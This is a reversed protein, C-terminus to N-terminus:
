IINFGDKKREKKKKKSENLAKDWWEQGYIIRGVTNFGKEFKFLSNNFLARTREADTSDPLVSRMRDYVGKDWRRLVSKERKKKRKM